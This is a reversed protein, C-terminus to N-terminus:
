KKLDRSYGIRNIFGYVAGVGIVQPYEHHENDFLFQELDGFTPLSDNNLDEVHKLCESVLNHCPLCQKYSDPSGDWIGSSYQYVEKPKIESGCDCCKHPKRAKREFSQFAQPFDSM